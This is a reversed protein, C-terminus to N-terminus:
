EGQFGQGGGAVGGRKGGLDVGRGGHLQEGHV